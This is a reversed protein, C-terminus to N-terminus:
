VIHLMMDLIISSLNHYSIFWSGIMVNFRVIWVEKYVFIKAHFHINVTLIWVWCPLHLLIKLSSNTVGEACSGLARRGNWFVIVRISTLPYLARAHACGICWHLLSVRSCEGSSRVLCASVCHQRATTFRWVLGTMPVDLRASNESVTVQTMSDRAECMFKWACLCIKQSWDFVPM